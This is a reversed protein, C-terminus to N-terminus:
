DVRCRESGPSTGEHSRWGNEGERGQEGRRRQDPSLGHSRLLIMFRFTRARAGLVLVLGSVSASSPAGETLAAADLDPITVALVNLAAPFLHAPHATSPKSATEGGADSTVTSTAAGRQSQLRLKLSTGAM